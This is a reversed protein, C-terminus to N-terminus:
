VGGTGVGGFMAGGWVCRLDNDLHEKAMELAVDLETGSHCTMLIWRYHQM